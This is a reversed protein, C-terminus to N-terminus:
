LERAHRDGLRPDAEPDHGRLETVFSGMVNAGLDQLNRVADKTLTKSSHELRVVVLTGDARAAMVSADTSPLVPPTDIIVYQFREKVRDFLDQVRPATLIESPGSLRTGAGMVSLNRIGCLRIARPLDIRGMLVDALGPEANLNLYTEVSPQRLDGDVLLVPTHELEAFALALNIATVTKGEGRISSTVVLTKPAGDPNMAILKNRLARIQEARFGGPDHFLVIFPHVARDVIVLADEGLGALLEPTEQSTKRSRFM